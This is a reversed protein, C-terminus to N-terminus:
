RRPKGRRQFHSDSRDRGGSKRNFKECRSGSLVTVPMGILDQIKDLKAVLDWSIIDPHGCLGECKCTFDRPKFYRIAAWGAGSQRAASIGPAEPRKPCQSNHKGKHSAM